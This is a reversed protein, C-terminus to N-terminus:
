AAGLRLGMTLSQYGHRSEVRPEVGAYGLRRALDLMADLSLTPCSFSMFAFKM